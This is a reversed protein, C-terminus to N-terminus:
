ATDLTNRFPNVLGPIPSSRSPSIQLIVIRADIVIDTGLEGESCRVDASRMTPRSGKSCNKMCSFSPLFFFVESLTRQNSSHHLKPLIPFTVSALKTPSTARLRCVNTTQDSRGDYCPFLGIFRELTRTRIMWGVYATVSCYTIWHPGQESL